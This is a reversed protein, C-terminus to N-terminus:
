CVPSGPLIRVKKVSDNESLQATLQERTQVANTLEAISPKAPLGHRALQKGTQLSQYVSTAENLLADLKELDSSM